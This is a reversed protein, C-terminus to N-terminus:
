VLQGRGDCQVAGGARRPGDGHRVSTRVEASNNGLTPDETRSEVTFVTRVDDYGPPFCAPVKPLCQVPEFELTVDISRDAILDPLDCTLGVFDGGRLRTARLLYDCGEARVRGSAHQGLHLNVERAPHHGENKIEVEYTLTDGTLVTTPKGTAEISLDSLVRDKRLLVERVHLEDDPRLSEDHVLEFRATLEVAADDTTTVLWGTANISLADGEFDYRDDNEDKTRITWGFSELFEQNLLKVFYDRDEFRDATTLVTLPLDSLPSGDEDRSPFVMDPGGDSNVDHGGVVATIKNYEAPDWSPSSM